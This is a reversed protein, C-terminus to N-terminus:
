PRGQRTFSYPDAHPIGHGALISEGTRIHWGSDSDRFLKVPGDLLALCAFMAAVAATLALDPLLWRRIMGRSGSGDGPNSGLLAL